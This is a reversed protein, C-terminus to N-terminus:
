RFEGVLRRYAYEARGYCDRAVAELGQRDRVIVRRRTAKILKKAEMRDLIEAIEGSDILAMTSLMKHPLPLENGDMRDHCMLICRAVREEQSHNTAALLTYASQVFFAEVYRELLQRLPPSREMTEHLSQIAIHYGRGEVKMIIDFLSPQRSLLPLAPTIGERGIIGIESTRKGPSRAIVSAIGTRLFYADRTEEGFTVLLTGVPLDVPELMSALIDRSGPDAHALLMKTSGIDAYAEM